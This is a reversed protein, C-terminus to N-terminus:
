VAGRLLVQCRRLTHESIDHGEGPLTATAPGARGGPSLCGRLRKGVAHQLEMLLLRAPGPTSGPRGLAPSGPHSRVLHPQLTLAAAAEEFAEKAAQAGDPGHYAFGVGCLVLLLLFTPALPRPSGRRAEPLM